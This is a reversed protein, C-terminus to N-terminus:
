GAHGSNSPETAARLSGARYEELAEAVTGTAGTYVPIEAAELARYANPGVQGTLIVSVSQDAMYQSAQVGVGGHEHTFGNEECRLEGTDTDYFCFYDSRGFRPDVPSDM